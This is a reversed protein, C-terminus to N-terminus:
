YVWEKHPCAHWGPALRTPLAPTLIDLAERVLPRKADPQVARLLAVFVQWPTLTSSTFFVTVACGEVPPLM